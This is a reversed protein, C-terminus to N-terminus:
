RRHASREDADLSKLERLRADVSSLLYFDGDGARQALQLQEIAAPLSGSLAYYEGQARHQWAIHGLAAHSKALMQYARAEHPRERVLGELMGIVERHSNLAQLTEAYEYILYSRRGFDKMARTLQERAGTPDGSERKIRAGLTEFMPNSGAETRATQLQAEAHRFDRARVLATALGYRAAAETSYRGEKLQNELAQVAEGPSGNEARLKARVLQFDISDPRQRYHVGAARTQLDAMRETTLPHTRLYAPAANLEALRTARQLREFFAPMGNPDFGSGEMLSFGVRDAEREFDRSYNLMAQIAGAQTGMIAAQSAQPSSRAALLAVVLGAVAAWTLQSEKQLQRAIHRQTVHSIEHALVGAFESESQAALLLGTHIGVFGGPMAFANISNDRVVFFEFERGADASVAVLRQGVSDVYANIEPDDVFDPDRRYERMISEGIKREAPLSLGAQAADGLDPLTQAFNTGTLSLCLILALVRKM